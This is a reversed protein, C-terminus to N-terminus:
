EIAVVVIIEDDVSVVDLVIVSASSACVFSLLLTVSTGLVALVVSVGCDCVLAVMVFPSVVCVACSSMVLVGLAEVPLFSKADSFMWM